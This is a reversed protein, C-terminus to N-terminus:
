NAKLMEDEKIIEEAGSTKLVYDHSDLIKDKDKNEEFSFCNIVNLEVNQKANIKKNNEVWIDIAKNVKEIFINSGLVIVAINTNCKLDKELLKFIKRIKTIDSEKWDVKRIKEKIKSNLGINKTIKEINKEENRELITRIITGKEMHKTVFPFIITAFHLDSAYMSCTKRLLIGENM